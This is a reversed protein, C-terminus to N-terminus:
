WQCHPGASKPSKSQTGLLKAGHMSSEAERKEWPQTQVTSRQHSSLTETSSAEQLVHSAFQRSAPGPSLSARVAAVYACATRTPQQSWTDTLGLSSDCIYILCMLHLFRCIGMAMGCPHYMVKYSSFVVQLFLTIDTGTGCPHSTAIHGPTTRTAPRSHRDQYRHTDRGISSSSGM